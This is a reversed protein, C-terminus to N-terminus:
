LFQAFTILDKTTVIKNKMEECISHEVSGEGDFRLCSIGEEFCMNSRRMDELFEEKGMKSEQFRRSRTTLLTEGLEYMLLGRLKSIGPYLIQVVQM